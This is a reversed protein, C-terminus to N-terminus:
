DNESDRPHREDESFSRESSSSTSIREESQQEQDPQGDDHGDKDGNEVKVDKQGDDHGDEAVGVSAPSEARTNMNKEARAHSPSPSPSPSESPRECAEAVSGTSPGNSPPPVLYTKLTAVESSLRQLEKRLTYNEEKLVLDEPAAVGSGNLQKAEEVPFDAAGDPTSSIGNCDSGSDSDNAANRAKHRLKHPLSHNNSSAASSDIGMIM